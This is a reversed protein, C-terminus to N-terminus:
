IELVKFDKIVVNEGVKAALAVLLDKVKKSPDRIYDEELLEEVSSPKLAVVQMALEKALKQFDDTRAVFDTECAVSVISGVKGTAHLYSVVLGEKVERDSKKTAKELGLKELAKKAEDFDGVSQELAKKAEMVGAGTQERLKKITEVDIM